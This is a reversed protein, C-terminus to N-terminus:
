NKPLQLLMPSFPLHFVDVKNSVKEQSRKKRHDNWENNRGENGRDAGEVEGQGPHNAATGNSVIKKGGEQCDAKTNDEYEDDM